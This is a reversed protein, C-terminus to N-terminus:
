SHVRNIYDMMLEQLVSAQSKGESDCARKFKTVVDGKLKYAKSILGNRKAYEEQAKYSNRVM